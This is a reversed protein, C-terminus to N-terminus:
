PRRMLRQRNVQYTNRVRIWEWHKGHKERTVKVLGIAVLERVARGWTDASLGYTLRATQPAVWAGKERRKGGQMDLLVILLAIAKASLQAVWGNKWFEVPLNVYVGRPREYPRGTGGQDLLRVRVPKGSGQNEVYILKEASLWSIADGIRRAGATEPVPLGLM